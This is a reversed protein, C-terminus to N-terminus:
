TATLYRSFIKPRKQRKQRNQVNKANKFTKSPKQYKQANKCPKQVNKPHNEDYQFMPPIRTSGPVLLMADSNDCRFGQRSGLLSKEAVRGGGLELYVDHSCFSDHKPFPDLLVNEGYRRRAVEIMFGVNRVLM